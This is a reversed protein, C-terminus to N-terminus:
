LNIQKVFKQIDYRNIGLDRLQRDSMQMLENETKLRRRYSAIGSKEWLRHFINGRSERSYNRGSGCSVSSM